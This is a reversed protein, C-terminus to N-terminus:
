KSLHDNIKVVTEEYREKALEVLRKHVICDIIECTSEPNYDDGLYEKVADADNDGAFVLADLKMDVMESTPIQLTIFMGALDKVKGYNFSHPM